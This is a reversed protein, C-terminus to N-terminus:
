QEGKVYMLMIEDITAPTVVAKPYRRMALDRDSVLAQWEYDQKRWSIIDGKDLQDFQAAGCKNM